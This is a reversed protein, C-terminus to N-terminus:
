HRLQSFKVKNSTIKSSDFPCNPSPCLGLDKLNRCSYPMYETMKGRKGCIHEVQYKTRRYDFDPVTSFLEIIEEEPVGKRHLYAVLHFREEHRLNEGEQLRKLINQICPPDRMRKRMRIQQHTHLAKVTEATKLREMQKLISIVEDNEEYYILSPTESLKKVVSIINEETCRHILVEPSIFVCPLMTKSNLTYPLRALRSIDGSVKVDVFKLKLHKVLLSVFKRITESSIPAPKFDIYIHFGRAGSFYVRPHIDSDILFKVIKMAERFVERLDYVVVDGLTEKKDEADIDIFIADKIVYDEKRETIFRENKFAYVTAYCDIGSYKHILLPVEESNRIIINRTFASKGSRTYFKAGFERPFRGKLHSNYIEVDVDKVNM